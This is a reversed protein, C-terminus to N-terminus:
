ELSFYKSESPAFEKRNTYVKELLSAFATKLNVESSVVHIYGTGKFARYEEFLSMKEWSFIIFQYIIMFHPM